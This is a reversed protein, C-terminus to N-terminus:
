SMGSSVPLKVSTLKGFCLGDWLSIYIVEWFAFFGAMGLGSQGQLCNLFTYRMWISESLVVGLSVFM